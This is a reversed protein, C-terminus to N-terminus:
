NKKKHTLILVLAAVLALGLAAGALFLVKKKTKEVEEPDTEDDIEDLLAEAEELTGDLSNLEDLESPTESEIEIHLEKEEM